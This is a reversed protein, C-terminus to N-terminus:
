LGFKPKPEDNDFDPEYPTKGDEIIEQEHDISVYNDSSTFIQNKLYKVEDADILYPNLNIGNYYDDEILVLKSSAKFRRTPSIGVKIYFEYQGLGTIDNEERKYIKQIDMNSIISSSTQTHFQGLIKVGTNTLIENRIDKNEIQEIHQNALILRLNWKRAQSLIVRLSDSIYNQFEDIFLYTPVRLRKDLASRAKAIGLISAIILRGAYDSAEDAMNPSFRFIIIKGNEIEQQLSITSKGILLKEFFHKGLITNIRNLISSKTRSFIKNKYHETIFFDRHARITNRKGLTALNSKNTDEIFNKLDKLTTNPTQLLTSICPPLFSKMTPTLDADQIIEDFANVLQETRVVISNLDESDMDFPNIIAKFEPELPDIFIIREQQEKNLDFALVEEALDGHPDLLILSAKKDPEFTHQQLHYFITKMLESKGSGIQGSIYAHKELAEVPLINKINKLFYRWIRLNKRELLRIYDNLNDTYQSTINKRLRESSINLFEFAPYDLFDTGEAITYFLERYEQYSIGRESQLTRYIEEDFVDDTKNQITKLASVGNDIRKTWIDMLKIVGKGFSLLDYQGLEIGKERREIEKENFLLNDINNGGLIKEINIKM